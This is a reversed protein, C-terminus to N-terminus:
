RTGFSVRSRPDLYPLVTAFERTGRDAVKITVMPTGGPRSGAVSERLESGATPWGVYLALDAEVVAVVSGALGPLDLREIRRSAVEIRWWPLRTQGVWGGFWIWAGDPAVAAETGLGLLERRGGALDCVFLAPLKDWGREAVGLEAFGATGVAIERSPVM